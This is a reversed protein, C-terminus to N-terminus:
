RALLGDKELQTTITLAQETILAGVTAIEFSLTEVAWVKQQTATSYLETVFTIAQAQQIREDRNLEAYDYGFLDFAFGVPRMPALEEQEQGKIRTFVIADFERSRIADHILGRSLTPNRGVVTYYAAASIDDRGITQALEREFTARSEFDGTVSIVLINHFGEPDPDYLTRIVTAPATSSACGVLIMVASLLLPLTTRSDVQM